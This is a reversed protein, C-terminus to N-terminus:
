DGTRQALLEFLPKLASLLDHLTRELDAVVKAVTATGLAFTERSIAALDYNGLEVGIHRAGSLTGLERNSYASDHIVVNRPKRYVEMSDKVRLLAHHVGPFKKAADAILLNTKRARKSLLLADAVLLFARDVAGIGRFIFNEYHYRYIEPDPDQAQSVEELYRIVLGLSSLTNDM